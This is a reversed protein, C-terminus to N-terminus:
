IPIRRLREGYIDAYGQKLTAISQTDPHLLLANSTILQRLTRSSTKDVERSLLLAIKEAGGAVVKILPAQSFADCKHLLLFFQWHVLILRDIQAATSLHSQSM